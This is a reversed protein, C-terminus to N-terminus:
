LSRYVADSVQQSVLQLGDMATNTFRKCRKWITNTSGRQLDKAPTTNLKTSQGSPLTSAVCIYHQLDM